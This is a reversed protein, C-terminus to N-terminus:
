VCNSSWDHPWCTTYRAFACSLAFQLPRTGRYKVQEVKYGSNWQRSICQTVCLRVRTHRTGNAGSGLKAIHAFLAM